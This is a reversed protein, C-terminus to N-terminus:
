PLQPQRQAEPQAPVDLTQDAAQPGSLLGLVESLFSEHAVVIVAAVASVALLVEAAALQAVVAAVAGGGVAVAGAGVPVVLVVAAAGALEAMWVHNAHTEAAAAVDAVGDLVAAVAASLCGAAALHLAM